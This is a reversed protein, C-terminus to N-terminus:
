GGPECVRMEEHLLLDHGCASESLPNPSATRSFGWGRSLASPLALRDRTRRKRPWRQELHGPFGDTAQRTHACPPALAFAPSRCMTLLEPPVCGLWPPDAV